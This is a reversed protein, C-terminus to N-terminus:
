DEEMKKLLSEVEDFHRGTKKLTDIVCYDDIDERNFPYKFGYAVENYIKLVVFRVVKGSIEYEVEDGVHIEEKKKKWADFKAKAEYYTFSSPGASHWPKNFCNAFEDVDMKDMEQALKWVENEIAERNYPTLEDLSEKPLSLGPLNICPYYERMGKPVKIEMPEEKFEIVYKM